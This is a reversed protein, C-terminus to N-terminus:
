ENEELNWSNTNMSAEFKFTEESLISSFWYNLALSNAEFNLISCFKISKQLLM